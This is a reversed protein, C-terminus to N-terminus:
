IPRIGRYVIPSSFTRLILDAPKNLIKALESCSLPQNGNALFIRFVSDVLANSQTLFDETHSCHNILTYHIADVPEVEGTKQNIWDIQDTDSITSLLESHTKCLFSRMYIVWDRDHTKWWDFDVKFKTNLTPKVLRLRSEM